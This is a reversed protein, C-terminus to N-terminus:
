GVFINVSNKLCGACSEKKGEEVDYGEIKQNTSLKGDLNTPICEKWQQVVTLQQTEPAKRDLDEWQRKEM